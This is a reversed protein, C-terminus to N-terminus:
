KGEITVSCIFFIVRMNFIFTFTVKINSFINIYHLIINTFYM